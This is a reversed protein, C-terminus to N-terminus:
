VKTEAWRPRVAAIIEVVIRPHVATGQEARETRVIFAEGESLMVNLSGPYPRMGTLREYADLLGPVDVMRRSLTGTGSFVIGVLERM